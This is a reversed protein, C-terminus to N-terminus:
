GRGVYLPWSIYTKSMGWPKRAIRLRGVRVGYRDAQVIVKRVFSHGNRVGMFGIHGPAVVAPLRSMLWDGIQTRNYDTVRFEPFM